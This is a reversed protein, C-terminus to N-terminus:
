RIGLLVQLRPSFNLGSEICFPIIFRAREVIEKETMGQPMIYVRSKPLDYKEVLSLVEELENSDSVVFKFISNIQAFYSLNSYIREYVKSGGSLQASSLKPSVNFKYDRLSEMPLYIGSTEFEVSELKVEELLESIERQYFLPEGGTFVVTGQTKKLFNGIVRSLKQRSIEKGGKFSVSYKTDCWICDLPCGQVRIFLCVRGVSDGEGQISVFVESVRM